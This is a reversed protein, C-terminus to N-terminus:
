RAIVAKQGPEVLSRATRIEDVHAELDPAFRDDAGRFVSVAAEHARADLNEGDAVAKEAFLLLSRARTAVVLAGELRVSTGRAALTRIARAPHLSPLGSAAKRM